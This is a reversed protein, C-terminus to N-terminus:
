GKLGCIQLGHIHYVACPIDVELSVISASDRSSDIVVPVSGVRDLQDGSHTGPMNNADAHGWKCCLTSVRRLTWRCATIHRCAAGQVYRGAM